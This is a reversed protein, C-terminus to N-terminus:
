RPIYYVMEMILGTSDAEPEDPIRRLEGQSKWATVANALADVIDERALRGPWRRLASNIIDEAEYYHERLVMLRGSYGAPTKKYYEM